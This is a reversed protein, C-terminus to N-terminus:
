IEGKEKMSQLGINIAKSIINHRELFRDGLIYVTQGKEGETKLLNAEKLQNLFTRLQKDTVHDGVIKLIDRKKAKGYKILYPSLVALVQEANWDVMMSYDAVKGSVEYYSRSLTFFQANTKGHKEICGKIELRKAVSKDINKHEGDRIKCLEIIDFVTLKENDPLANQINQIFIAFGADKVMASLIATVDFDDSKSYDPKPKGEALTYFFIKDIGQGSREVIGAKSLVDALLRNRPTSPVTLLNELSVGNPFGGANVVDIREPYLKVVIESNKRYDRHAFANNILERIVSENFYPIDYIYAGDRVPFYKNEKKIDNWLEDILKFFPQGYVNRKNFEIQSETNRYELMVKAQPFLRNLVDEKGVLLIAANTIRDGSILNLDNLAQRDSLSAFEPNRQKKAYKTKMIAIAEQDLDDLTAEKCFQQSFDPDQEQIISILTKDDMPQLEEGVRMLAVDEFKFVKGIPHAPVEIVLVRKGEEDYLEYIWPRIKLDRYINSELQGIANISQTTGVVKHPYTDHMGLVLRGGGENCLAVVYGLICKRREKPMTKNCGNYSFNGQEAKKFEVHDESERQHKLEEITYRKM